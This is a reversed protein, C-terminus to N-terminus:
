RQSGPRPEPMPYMFDNFCEQYPSDQAMWAGGSDKLKECISTAKTFEPIPGIADDGSHRPYPNSLPITSAGLAFVLFIYGLLHIKRKVM